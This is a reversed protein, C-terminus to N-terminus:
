PFGMAAEGSFPTATSVEEGGMDVTTDTSIEAASPVYVAPSTSSKWTFNESWTNTVPIGVRSNFM